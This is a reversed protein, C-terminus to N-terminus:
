WINGNCLAYITTHPSHSSFEGPEREYKKLKLRFIIKWTSPSCIHWSQWKEIENYEFSFDSQGPGDVMHVLDTWWFFILIWKTSYRNFLFFFFFQRRKLISWWFKHGCLLNWNPFKRVSRLVITLSVSQAMEHILGHILAENASQFIENNLGIGSNLAACQKPEWVRVNRKQKM